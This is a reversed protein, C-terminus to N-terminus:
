FTDLLSESEFKKLARNLTSPTIHAIHCLHPKAVKATIQPSLSSDNRITSSMQSCQTSPNSNIQDSKERENRWMYYRYIVATLVTIPTFSHKEQVADAKDCIVREEKYSFPLFYSLSPMWISSKLSTLNNEHPFIDVLRDLCKISTQTIDAIYHLPRPIEEDLLAYYLALATIEDITASVKSALEDWVDKQHISSLAKLKSISIPIIYSPIHANSTWDELIRTQAIRCWSSTKGAELKTESYFASNPNAPQSPFTSEDLVLCCDGCIITGEREDIIRGARRHHCNATTCESSSSNSSYYSM